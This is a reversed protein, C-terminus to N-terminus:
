AHLRQPFFMDMEQGTYAPYLPLRYDRLSAMHRPVTTYTKGKHKGSKCQRSILCAPHIKQSFVIPDNERNTFLFVSSHNSSYMPPHQGSPLLPVAQDTTWARLTAAPFLPQPPTDSVVVRFSQFVRFSDQRQKKPLVQHLLDQYFVLAHGPPIAVRTATDPAAQAVFGTGMGGARHTSLSCSFHQPTDDLNIWGGFVHERTPDTIRPCVDRHWSERSTSTGKRRVCVRDFLQELFCGEQQFVQQFFQRMLPYAEQRLRRIDPHHFSSPNGYAGFGGMVYPPGQCVFEPFSLDQVRRRHAGTQERSFLPVIAVGDRFLDM